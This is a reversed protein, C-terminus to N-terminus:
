QGLRYYQSPHFYDKLLGVLNAADALIIRPGKVKAPIGQQHTIADALRQRQDLSFANCSLYLMNGKIYGARMVWYALMVISFHNFVFEPIVKVNDKFWYNYWSSWVTNHLTKFEYTNTGVRLSPYKDNACWPLLNEKIFTIFEFSTGSVRLLAGISQNRSHYYQTTGKALLLGCIAHQLWAPMEINGIVERINDSNYKNQEWM